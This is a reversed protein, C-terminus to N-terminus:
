HEYVAEGKYLKEIFELAESETEYLRSDPIHRVVATSLSQGMTVIHIQQHSPSTLYSRLYWAPIAKCIPNGPGEFRIIEVYWVRDSNQVFTLKDTNIM